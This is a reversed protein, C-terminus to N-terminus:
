FELESIQEIDVQFDSLEDEDFKEFIDFDGPRSGRDCLSRFSCYECKSVDGTLPYPTDNERFNEIQKIITELKTKVQIHEATSYDYIIEPESSLPYWYCMKISNPDIEKTNFLDTGSLTFIFPYLYTQVREAIASPPPKKPSTKWDIILYRDHQRVILDYKAVLRHNNLPVYLLQEYFLQNGKLSSAFPLFAEWMELLVPDSISSLIQSPNIGTFFQQCIQHFRNGQRISHELATMRNTTAAPWAANDLVILEFRRPCDLFNQLNSQNLQLFILNDDM